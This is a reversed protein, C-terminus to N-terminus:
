DNLFSRSGASLMPYIYICIIYIDYINNEIYFNHMNHLKSIYFSIVFNGYNYLLKNFFQM